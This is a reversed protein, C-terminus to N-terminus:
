NIMQNTPLNRARSGRTNPRSHQSQDILGQFLTDSKSALERFSNLEHDSQLISSLLAEYEKKPKRRSKAGM